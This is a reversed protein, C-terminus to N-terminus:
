VIVEATEFRIYVDFDYARDHAQSPESIKTHGVYPSDQEDAKLTDPDRIAAVLWKNIDLTFSRYKGWAEDLYGQKHATHGMFAPSNTYHSLEWALHPLRKAHATYQICDFLTRCYPTKYIPMDREVEGAEEDNYTRIIYFVIRRFTTPVDPKDGPDIEKDCCEKVTQIFSEKRDLEAQVENRLHFMLDQYEKPSYDTWDLSYGAKPDITVEALETNLVAKIHILDDTYM